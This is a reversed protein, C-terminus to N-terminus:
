ALRSGFGVTVGSAVCARPAPTLRVHRALREGRVGRRGRGAARLPRGAATSVGFLVGFAFGVLYSMLAVCVVAVFFGLVVAHVKLRSESM